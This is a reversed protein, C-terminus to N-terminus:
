RCAPLKPLQPGKRRCPCSVRLFRGRMRRRRLIMFLFFLPYGAADAERLLIRADSSTQEIDALDILGSSVAATVIERYKGDAGPASGGENSTRYTFLLACGRAIERISALLSMMHPLDATEACADARFELIEAGSRVAEEADRIMGEPTSACVPVAIKPMGDGIVCGNKLNITKKM